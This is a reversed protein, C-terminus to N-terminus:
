DSLTLYDAPVSVDVTGTATVLGRLHGPGPELGTVSLEDVGVRVGASRLANNLMAAARAGLVSPELFVQEELWEAIWPEAAELLANSLFDRAETDIRVDSLFIRRTDEDQEIKALVHATNLMEPLGGDMGSMDKLDATFDDLFTVSVLIDSERKELRQMEHFRVPGFSASDELAQNIAFRLAEYDLFIPMSFRSSAPREDEVVLREPFPCSPRTPHAAIRTDVDIRVQIRIADSDIRLPNARPRSPTLELWGNAEPFLPYSACLSAWAARAAAEVAGKPGLSRRLANVAGHIAADAYPLIHERIDVEFISLVAPKLAKHVTTEVSPVAELAWDERLWLGTRVSYGVDLEFTTGLLELLFPVEEDVKLEGGIRGQILLDTGERRVTAATGAIGWSVEHGAIRAKEESSMEGNLIARELSHFPVEVSVTFHSTPASLPLFGIDRDAQPPLVFEPQRSKQLLTWSVLIAIAALLLGVCAVCVCLLVFRSSTQRSGRPEM